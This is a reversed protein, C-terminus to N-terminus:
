LGAVALFDVGGATIRWRRNEPSVLPAHASVLEKDQLYALAARVTDDNAGEIAALRAGTVLTGLPLSAGSTTRLQLLLNIRLTEPNM